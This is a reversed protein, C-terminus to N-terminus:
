KTSTADIQTFILHFIVGAYIREQQRQCIDFLFTKEEINNYCCLVINKLEIYSSVYTYYVFINDLSKM